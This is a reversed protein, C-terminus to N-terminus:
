QKIIQRVLNFSATRIRFSYTGKPYASIDIETQDGRITQNDILQGSINFIELEGGSLGSLIVSNTTPNPYLKVRSTSSSTTIGTIVQESNIKIIRAISPIDDVMAFLMYYGSLAAMSDLPVQATVMNEVQSFDLELFRNNGTNMFHTVSQLSVLIVSTPFNTKEINFVINEGRLFDDKNLNHIEPRVGKFLYPPEFAEITSTAPENGPSGEGGVAIIRGDPVLITTCHYERPINLDELRRWSDAYPNYLDTIGMYNWQNTHTPDTPDEKEGGIVLVKKNPLLVTKARSRIPLFNQGLSWQNLEPDYVEVISGYNPPNFSKYGIAVVKGEPLLILEHDSHDGNPMRNNQVFDAALDWEETPPSFLQPPRHTMLAEGNYLLVIPSVENGIAIEGVPTSTFDVPDYIESTTVRIPNDLGGGGTLLLKGDVLQVLTPYWRFDSLDPRNEWTESEADFTKVIKTGPGYIEQDTGGLFILDGNPLLAPAVCGLVEDDGFIFATDNTVPDFLFPDKSNHCYFVKGNPLLIGLDTGGLPEPSEMVVEWRGVHTEPGLSFNIAAQNSDISLLTTQYDRELATVGITYNGEPIENFEYNGTEDTRTEFFISLDENFLTVRANSVVTSGESVVGEVRFQALVTTFCFLLIVFPIISKMKIKEKM